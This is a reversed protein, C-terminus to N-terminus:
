FRFLYSVKVFVQRGDNIYRNRRQVFGNPGSVLGPDLTSLNTNYGVYVATGPHILYTFLLDYNFQKTTDLTVLTPNAITANYQGIFRVSMEKNIQYNWKSRIV